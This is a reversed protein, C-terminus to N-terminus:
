NEVAACYKASRSFFLLSSFIGVQSPSSYKWYWRPTCVLWDSSFRPLRCFSISTSFASFSADMSVNNPALQGCFFKSVTQFSM